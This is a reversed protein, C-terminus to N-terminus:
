GLDINNAKEKIGNVIGFQISKFGVVDGFM